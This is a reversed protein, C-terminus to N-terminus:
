HTDRFLEVCLIIQALKRKPRRWGIKQGKSKSIEHAALNWRFLFLNNSNIFLDLLDALLVRFFKFHNSYLISQLLTSIVNKDVKLEVVKYKAFYLQCYLAVCRIKDFAAIIKVMVQILELSWVKARKSLEAADPVIKVLPGLDILFHYLFLFLMVLWCLMNTLLQALLCDHFNIQLRKDTIFTAQSVEV